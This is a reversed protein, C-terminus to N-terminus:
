ERANLGVARDPGQIVSNNGLTAGNITRGAMLLRITEFTVIRTKGILHPFESVIHYIHVAGLKMYGVRNGGASVWLKTGTAMLFIETHLAVGTKSRPVKGNPGMSSAPAHNIDRAYGM